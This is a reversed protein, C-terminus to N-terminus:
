PGGDFNDKALSRPEKPAGSLQVMGSQTFPYVACLARCNRSYQRANDQSPEAHEVSTVQRNSPQGQATVRRLCLPSAIFTTGRGNEEAARRCVRRLQLQSLRRPLRM